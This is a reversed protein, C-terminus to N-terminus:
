HEGPVEPRFPTPKPVTFGPPMPEPWPWKQVECYGELCYSCESPTEPHAKHGCAPCAEQDTSV